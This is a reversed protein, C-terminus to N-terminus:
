NLYKNDKNDKEVLEVLFKFSTRGQLVSLSKFKEWSIGEEVEEKTLGYKIATKIIGQYCYPTFIYYEEATIKKTERIKNIVKDFKSQNRLYTEKLKEIQKEIKM